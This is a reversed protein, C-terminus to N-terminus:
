IKFDIEELIEEFKKSRVGVQIMERITGDNLSGIEKITYAAISKLIGYSKGDPLKLTNLFGAGWRYKMLNRLEDYTACSHLGSLFYVGLVGHFLNNAKISKPKRVASIEMHVYGANREVAKRLVENKEKQKDPPLTVKYHDKVWEVVANNCVM